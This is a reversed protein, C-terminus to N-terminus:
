ADVRVVLLAVDDSRPSEAVLRDCLHDLPHEALEVARAGLQAIGHDLPVGRREVLGDTYLLLTAGPDLTTRATRHEVAAVPIVALGGIEGLTRAPGAPPILLPPPHGASAWSLTWTPDEERTLRGFLVTAMTTISLCRNAEILRDLVAGPELDEELALARLVARLQGMSAAATIDHGVVDGVAIALRGPAVEFADYWDGGVEDRGAPEYRACIQLGDVEPPAALLSRQLVLASQRTRQYTLGHGLAVAAYDAIEEILALDQDDWSPRNNCMGFMAVAVVLGDVLVPVRVVHNLGDRFTDATGTRISWEPVEPTAMPEAAVRGSRITEVIPDGEYWAIGSMVPAPVVEDIIESAVRDTILPLAPAVGPAVPRRLVHMSSFDALEPVVVRALARLEDLPDLQRNIAALAASLLRHRRADSRLRETRLARGLAQAALDAVTTLFQREAPEFERAAWYGVSLIGILEGEVLLPLRALAEIRAADYQAVSTAGYRRRNEEISTVFVPRHEAVVETVASPVDLRLETFRDLYGIPTGGLRVARAVGKEPDLERLSFTQCSLAEQVHDALAGTVDAVTITGALAHALEALRDAREVAAAARAAAAHEAARLGAGALAQGLLRGAASLFEAEEDQRPHSRAFHLGLVGVLGPAGGASLPVLVVTRSEPHASLLGPIRTRTEAGDGLWLPGGACAKAVGTALGGRAKLLDLVRHGSDTTALWAVQGDCGIRAVWADACSVQAGIVALGHKAIAQEATPNASLTVALEYLARLRSDAVAPVAATGKLDTM